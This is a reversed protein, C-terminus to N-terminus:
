KVQYIVGDEFEVVKELGKAVVEPASGYRFEQCPDLPNDVPFYDKTHWLIYNVNRSSLIVPTQPNSLDAALLREQDSMLRFNFVAKQHIRQFLSEYPPPYDRLNGEEFNDACGGGLDTTDRPYEVIVTEKPQGALWTYLPPRQGVNALHLPPSNLNEFAGILLITLPLFSVLWGLAFKNRLKEMTLLLGVGALFVAFILVLAGARAYVRFMPFIKFLFFSLGYIKIGKIYMFSPLSLWFSFALGILSKSVLHHYRKDKRGLVVGLLALLWIILPIYNAREPLFTSHYTFNSYNNIFNYFKTVLYGFVPHFVSPMVYDWPRAGYAVLDYLSNRVFGQAIFQNSIRSPFFFGALVQWTWPLTLCGAAFVALFSLWIRKGCVTWPSVETANSQISKLDKALEANVQGDSLRAYSAQSKTFFSSMTTFGVFVPLLLAAFYGYQFFSLTCFAFVAGLLLTNKVTPSDCFSFLLWIFLVLPAIFFIEINQMGHWWIFQSSAIFFAALLAPFFKNWLRKAVLFPIIFNLSLFILFLLNYARIEGFIISFLSLPYVLVPHFPFVYNIGVPYNIFRNFSSPIGQLFSYRRWWALYIYGFLDSPYGYIYTDFIPLLCVAMLALVLLLLAFLFAPKLNFIRKIM